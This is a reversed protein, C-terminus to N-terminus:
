LRVKILSIAEHKLWREQASATYHLAVPPLAVSYPTIQDPNVCVICGALQYYQVVDRNLLAGDIVLSSVSCALELFHALSLCRAHVSLRVKRNRTTDDNPRAQVRCPGSRYKIMLKIM